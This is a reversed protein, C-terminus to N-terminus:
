YIQMHVLANGPCKPTSRGVEYIQHSIFGHSCPSPCTESCEAKQLVPQSRTTSNPHPLAGQRQNHSTHNLALSYAVYDM